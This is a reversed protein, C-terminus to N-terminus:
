NYFRVMTRNGGVSVKQMIPSRDSLCAFPCVFSHEPAAPASRCRSHPDGGLASPREVRELVDAYGRWVENGLAAQHIVAEGSRMAALTDAQAEAVSLSTDIVAVPREARISELLAAEHEDGKRSLLDATDARKPEAGLRGNAAEIDLHTLHECELFNILDSASLLLEGDILQV